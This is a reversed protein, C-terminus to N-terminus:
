GLVCLVDGTNVSAGVSVNVSSVTGAGPAMIENEMKMAELIMLVDGENVSDGAKVNVALISGPMPSNVSQGGAVVPHAAVPAPAPAQVPAAVPVPAPAANPMAAVPAAAAGSLEEVLIEYSTGNVNVLFKRM